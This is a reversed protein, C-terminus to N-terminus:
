EFRQKILQLADEVQHTLGAKQMNAICDPLSGWNRSGHHEFLPAPRDIFHVVVNATEARGEFRELGPDMDAIFSVDARRTGHVLIDLQPSRTADLDPLYHLAGMLGGIALDNRELRALEAVLRNASRPSGSRDIFYVCSLQNIRQMWRFWDSQAFYRLRLTKGEPDKAICHEYANLVKYITPVSAGTSIVIDAISVSPLANLHRTLLYAIVAEQSAKDPRRYAEKFLSADSMGLIETQWAAERTDHVLIRDALQLQVISKFQKVEVAIRNKALTCGFLYIHVDAVEPRAQLEYAADLLLTRLDRTNKLDHSQLHLHRGIADTSESFDNPKRRITPFLNPETDAARM